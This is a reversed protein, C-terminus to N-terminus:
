YLKVSVIGLIDVSSYNQSSNREWFYFHFTNVLLPAVCTFGLRDLICTLNIFFSFFFVQKPSSQSALPCVPCNWDQVSLSALAVALCAHVTSVIRNCFDFSRDPFVKRTVMFLTTWSTVGFVILKVVYDEM